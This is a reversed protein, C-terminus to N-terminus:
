VPRSWSRSTPVALLRRRPSRSRRPTEMPTTATTASSVVDDGGHTRVYVDAVSYESLDYQQGNLSVRENGITVRDSGGTGHVHVRDNEVFVGGAFELQNNVTDAESVGTDLNVILHYDADTDSAFDADFWVEHYGITGDVYTMAPAPYTQLVQDIAAGDASRGVQVKLDGFAENLVRYGVHLQGTAEDVDFQTVFVDAPADFSLEPRHSANTSQTSSYIARHNNDL